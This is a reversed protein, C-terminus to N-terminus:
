CNHRRRVRHYGAVGIRDSGAAGTVRSMSATSFGLDWWAKASYRLGGYEKVGGDDGVASGM